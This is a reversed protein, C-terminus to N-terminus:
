HQQGEQVLLIKVVNQPISDEEKTMRHASTTEAVRTNRALPFSPRDRPPRDGGVSTWGALVSLSSTGVRTGHHTTSSLVLLTGLKYGLRQIRPRESDKHTCKAQSREELVAAGRPRPPAGGRTRPRPDWVDYVRPAHSYLRTSRM